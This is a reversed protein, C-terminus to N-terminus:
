VGLKTRLFRFKFEPSLDSAILKRYSYLVKAMQNIKHRKVCISVLVVGATFGILSGLLMKEQHNM